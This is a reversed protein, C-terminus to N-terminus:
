SCRPCAPRPTWSRTSRCRRGATCGTDSGRTGRRCTTWWRSSTTAAASPVSGSRTGITSSRRSIGCRRRFRLPRSPPFLVFAIHEFTEPVLGLFCKPFPKRGGERGGACSDWAGLLGWLTHSSRGCGCQAYPVQWPGCATVGFEGLPHPPLRPILGWLQCLCSLDPLDAVASQCYWPCQCSSVTHGSLFFLHKGYGIIM